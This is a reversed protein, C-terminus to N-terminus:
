FYNFANKTAFELLNM